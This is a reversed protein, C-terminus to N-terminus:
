VLKDSFSKKRVLHLMPGTMCTTVLAMIVLITFLQQSLIGLELGINLVILEVLGRTNMLFGLSMAIKSNMGCMRATIYTGGFKGLTAIAIIILCILWNEASGILTIQTKMGTYAFFAPLFVISIIVKLKDAMENLVKNDRPVVLGLLFAGFIAHIGIYEAVAASLLLATFLVAIQQEYKYKNSHAIALTSGRIALPKICIFMFSIYIITLIITLVANTITTQVIGIIIALLCWAVIDNVAACTMAFSGLASKQLGQDSLIRALVPFATVAMSIGMFLSFSFSREPILTTYNYLIFATLIGFTFPILVSAQSIIIVAKNSGRLVSFEFEMGVIFIYIIIGLQSIIGISPIISTPVLYHYFDPSILGVLSPGILIGALMECIVLPQYVSKLILHLLRSVIIVTLLVLLVHFLQSQDM